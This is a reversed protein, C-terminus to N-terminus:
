AAEKRAAAERAAQAKLAKTRRKKAPFSPLMRAIQNYNDDAVYTVGATKRAKRGGRHSLFHGHGQQGRQIKGRASVKKFRKAAAKRTKLKYGM